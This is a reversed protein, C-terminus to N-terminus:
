STRELDGWTLSFAAGTSVDPLTLSALRRYLVEPAGTVLRHRREGRKVYLLSHVQKAPQAELPRERTRPLLVATREDLEGWLGEAGLVVPRIRLADPDVMVVKNHQWFAEVSDPRWWAIGAYPWILEVLFEVSGPILNVNRTVPPYKPSAIPSEAVGKAVPM